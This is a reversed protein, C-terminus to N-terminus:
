AVKNMRRDGVVQGIFQPLVNITLCPRGRALRDRKVPEDWQDGAAFQLDELAWKRNQDDYRSDAEYLKIAYNIFDMQTKWPGEPVYKAEGDEDAELYEGLNDLADGAATSHDAM